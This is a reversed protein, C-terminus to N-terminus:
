TEDKSVAIAATAIANQTAIERKLYTLETNARELVRLGASPLGVLTADREARGARTKWRERAQAIFTTDNGEICISRWGIGRVFDAILPSSWHDASPIAYTSYGQRFADMIETWAEDWSPIATDLEVVKQRLMGATPAFERGERAFAGVASDVQEAPLDALDDLYQKLAQPPIEISWWRRQMKAAVAAWQKANM